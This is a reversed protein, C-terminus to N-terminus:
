VDGRNLSREVLRTSGVPLTSKNIVVANTELLPGLQDAEERVYTLDASGDDGQPTPLCLFVFEAGTVAEARDLVFRLTGADLGQRVLDELGAEFIPIEGRNLHE